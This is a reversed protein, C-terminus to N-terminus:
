GETKNVATVSTTAPWRIPKETGSPSSRALVVNFKDILYAEIREARRRALGLNYESPGTSDTFGTLVVYTSPNNNLFEGLISLFVVMM